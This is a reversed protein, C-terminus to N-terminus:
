DDHGSEQVAVFALGGRVGAPRLVAVVSVAAVAASPHEPPVSPLLSLSLFYPSLDETM